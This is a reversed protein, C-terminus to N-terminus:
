LNNYSGTLFRRQIWNCVGSIEKKDVRQRLKLNAGRHVLLLGEPSWAAAVITARRKCIPFSRTWFADESICTRHKGNTSDPIREEEKDLTEEICRKTCSKWIRTMTRSFTCTSSRKIVWRYSPTLSLWTDLSGTHALLMKYAAIYPEVSSNGWQVNEKSDTNQM